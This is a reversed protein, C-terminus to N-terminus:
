LLNTSVNFFLRNGHSLQQLLRDKVVVLNFVGFLHDLVYLIENFFNIEIYLVFNLADMKM